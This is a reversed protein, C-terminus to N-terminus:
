QTISYFTARSKNGTKMDVAYWNYTGKPKNVTYNLTFAGEKNTRVIVPAFYGGDSKSFYLAIFANKSFYKGRQVLIDGRQVRKSSDKITKKHQVKKPSADSKTNAQQILQNEQDTAVDQEETSALSAMTVSPTVLVEPITPEAPVTPEVLVVPDIPVVPIVPIEPVEPLEVATEPEDSEDAPNETEDTTHDSEDETNHHSAYGYGYGYGYAVGITSQGVVFLVLVISVTSLFVKSKEHKM